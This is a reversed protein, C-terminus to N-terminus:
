NGQSVAEPRRGWTGYRFGTELNVLVSNLESEPQLIYSIFAKVEHDSEWGCQTEAPFLMALPQVRQRVLSEEWDM